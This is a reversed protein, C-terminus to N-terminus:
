CKGGSGGDSLLRLADCSLLWDAVAQVQESPTLRGRVIESVADTVDAIWGRRLYPTRQPLTLACAAVRVELAILHLLTQQMERLDWAAQAAMSGYDEIGEAAAGSQVPTIQGFRTLRGTLSLALHGLIDLGSRGPTDVLGAPLGGSFARTLLKTVRRESLVSARYLANRLLDAALALETADFNGNSVVEGSGTLVVPNDLPQELERLAAQEAWGLAQYLAGHVQPVCRFSLPDQISQPAGDWEALWKTLRLAVTQAAEGRYAVVDPRYAQRNGLAAAHSLAAGADLWGACLGIDWVALCAVGATFSNAGVLALADRPRLTVPVLCATRLAEEAQVLTGGDRIVWGSGILVQAAQALAGLDAEGVSGWVRVWPVVRRNLLNVWARFVEPSIGSGGQALGVARAFLTARVVDEPVPPGVNVAHDLIVERNHREQADPPITVQKFSGLGTSLGYVAEGSNLLRHIVERARTLRAMTTEGWSVPSLGRAVRIVDELTVPTDLDVPIGGGVVRDASAWRAEWNM